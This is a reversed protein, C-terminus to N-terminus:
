GSYSEVEFRGRQSDFSLILATSGKQLENPTRAYVQVVLPASETKIEAQGFREDVTGTTIRCVSGILDRKAAVAGRQAFVPQLPRVCRAAIPLALFLAVLLV